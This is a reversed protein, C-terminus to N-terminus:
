RLGGIIAGVLGLLMGGTMGGIAIEAALGAVVLTVVASRLVEALPLRLPAARTDCTGGTVEADDPTLVAYRTASLILAAVTAIAVALLNLDSM